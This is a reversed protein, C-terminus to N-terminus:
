LMPALAGAVFPILWIAWVTVSFRNFAKLENDRGRLLVVLAWIAHAAMLLLAISGTWAMVTNLAANGIQAGSAAIRTMVFTGSADCALGCFFMVAHWPKLIGAKKEAWVGTTYFALACCILVIAAVLMIAEL